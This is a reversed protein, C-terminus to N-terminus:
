AAQIASVQRWLVHLAKELKKDIVEALDQRTILIDEARLYTGHPKVIREATHPMILGPISSISVLLEGDIDVGVREDAGDPSTITIWEITTEAAM